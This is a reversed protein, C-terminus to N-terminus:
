NAMHSPDHYADVAFFVNGNAGIAFKATAPDIRGMDQAQSETLWLDGDPGPTLAERYSASVVTITLARVTV